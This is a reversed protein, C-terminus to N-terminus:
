RRSPGANSSWAIPCLDLSAGKTGYTGSCFRCGESASGEDHARTRQSPAVKELVMGCLNHLWTCSRGSGASMTDANIPGTSKLESAITPHSVSLPEGRLPQALRDIGITRIKSAM